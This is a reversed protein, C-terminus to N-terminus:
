AQFDPIAYINHKGTVLINDFVLIKELIADEISYGPRSKHNSKSVRQDTEMNGKNRIKVFMRMILQLDAEILQTTSLKGLVSGKAKEIMVVLKKLWRKPFFQVIIIM